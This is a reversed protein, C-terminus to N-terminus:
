NYSYMFECTEHMYKLNFLKVVHLIFLIKNLAYLSPRDNIKKIFILM